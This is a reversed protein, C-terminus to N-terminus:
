HVDKTGVDRMEKEVQKRTKGVQKLLFVVMTADTITELTCLPCAKATPGLYEDMEGAKILEDAEEEEIGGHKKRAEDYCWDCLSAGCKCYGYYGCDPYTRSCSDCTYYSVGM